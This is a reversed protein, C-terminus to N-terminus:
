YLKAMYFEDVYVGDVLISKKKIGEIEFGNSEYLKKAIVNSCMVTLELRSILNEKAWLDLESFFKTGIGEGRHAERIGVVIYSTHKIRKLIGREASLFGVIANEEEAILLLNLRNISQEIMKRVRSVDNDREDPELLMYKTEKDLLLLMSLLNNADNLKAKRIIM